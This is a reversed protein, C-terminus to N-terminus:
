DTQHSVASPMLYTVLHRKYSTGLCAALHGGCVWTVEAAPRTDLSVHGVTQAELVQALRGHQRNLKMLLEIKWSSRRSLLRRIQQSLMKGLVDVINDRSCFWFTKASNKCKAIRFHCFRWNFQIQLGSHWFHPKAKKLGWKKHFARCWLQPSTECSLMEQLIRLNDIIDPQSAM